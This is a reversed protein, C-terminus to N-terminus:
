ICHYNFSLRTDGFCCYPLKRSTQAFGLTSQLYERREWLGRKYVGLRRANSGCWCGGNAGRKGCRDERGPGAGVLHWAHRGLPPLVQSSPLLGPTSAARVHPVCQAWLVQPAEGFSSCCVRGTAGGRSQGSGCTVCVQDAGLTARGERSGRQLEGKGASLVKDDGPVDLLLHIGRVPDPKVM